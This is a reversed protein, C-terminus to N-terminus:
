RRIICDREAGVSVYKVPCAVADEIMLIYDRAEKPLDEFRRVASIDCGWGPVERIVPEAEDLLTPFPFRDTPEGGIRYATCVPITKMYSLIDLKTVALSTTGQLEAGYRTAVLDLAGVRRPRGTKAGYEAGAERLLAAEEGFMESVFPGEGM